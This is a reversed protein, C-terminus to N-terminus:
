QIIACSITLHHCLCGTALLFSPFTSKISPKPANCWHLIGSDLLRIGERLLHYQLPHILISSNNTDALPHRSHRCLHRAQVGRMKAPALHYANFVIGAIAMRPELEQFRQLLSMDQRAACKAFACSRLLVKGRRSVEDLAMLHIAGLYATMGHGCSPSNFHSAIM